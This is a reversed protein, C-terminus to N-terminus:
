DALKGFLKSLECACAVEAKVDNNGVFNVVKNEYDVNIEMGHKQATLNAMTLFESESM